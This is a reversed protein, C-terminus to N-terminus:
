LFFGHSHFGGMEQQVFDGRWAGLAELVPKWSVAVAAAHTIAACPRFTRLPIVGPFRAFSSSIFPKAPKAESLCVLFSPFVMM